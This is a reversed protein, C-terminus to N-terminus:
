RTSTTVDHECDRGAAGPERLWDQSLQNFADDVPQIDADMLGWIKDVPEPGETTWAYPAGGFVYEPHLRIMRWMSVYNISRRGEWSPDAGFETIFLPRELGWQPWEDLIRELELSYINMGYLLWPREELPAMITGSIEPMFYDEADRYVVPHNPDMEHFMDAIKSYFTLFDGHMEAPMETLIENGVGWMRLAPHGKFREIKATAEDILQSQFEENTYDGEPPLYFPMLIGIGYKHAIDLTLEDFKDQEYWKDTDWGIIHNVGAKCLMQFDRHYNAGREEQSLYRYIPNYGMGIFLESAGNVMYHFSGDKSREITVFSPTTEWPPVGELIWSANAKGNRPSLM